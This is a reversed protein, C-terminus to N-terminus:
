PADEVVILHEVGRGVVVRELSGVAQRDHRFPVLEPVRSELPHFRQHTFRDHEVSPVEEGGGLHLVLAEGIVGNAPVSVFVVTRTVPPAPYMPLWAAFARRRAPCWTTM